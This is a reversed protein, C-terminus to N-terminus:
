ESFNRQNFLYNFVEDLVGNGGAVVNYIFVSATKM